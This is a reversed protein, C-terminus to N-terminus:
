FLLSGGAMDWTSFQEHESDELDTSQSPFILFINKNQIRSPDKSKEKKM